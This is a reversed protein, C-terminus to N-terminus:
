KANTETSSIHIVRAIYPVSLPFGSSSLRESLQMMDALTMDGPAIDVSEDPSFVTKPQNANLLAPPLSPTDAITRMMWATIAAQTTADQAWATLVFHLEVSLPMRAKSISDAGIRRSRFISPLVRVPFLSVGAQMPNSFDRYMYVRFDLQVNGFDEPRYAMRLMQVVADCVAALAFTSAV